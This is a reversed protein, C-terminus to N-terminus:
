EVMHKANVILEMRIEPSIFLRLLALGREQNIYLM